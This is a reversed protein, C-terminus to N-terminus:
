MYSPMELIRAQFARLADCLLLNNIYTTYCDRLTQPPKGQPLLNEFYKANLHRKPSYAFLNELSERLSEHLALETNVFTISRDGRARYYGDSALLGCVYAMEEHVHLPARELYSSGFGGRGIALREIESH